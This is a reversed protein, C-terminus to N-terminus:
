NENVFSGDDMELESKNQEEVMKLQENLVNIAGVCQQFLAAHNDRQVILFKIQEEIVHTELVM